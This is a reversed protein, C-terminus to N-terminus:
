VDASLIKMVAESINNTKAIDIYDPTAAFPIILDKFVGTQKQALAISLAISAHIAEQKGSSGIRTYMSGSIDCVPIFSNAEGLSFSEQLQKWMSNLAESKQEILAKEKESVTYYGRKIREKEQLISVVDAVISTHTLNTTKVEGTAVKEFYRAVKRSFAARYKWAALSPVKKLEIDKWDNKCMLNEVVSTNKVLFRRFDGTRMKM